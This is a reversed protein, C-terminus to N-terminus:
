EWDLDILSKKGLLIEEIMTLDAKATVWGSSTDDIEYNDGEIRTFTRTCFGLKIDVSEGIGLAKIKEFSTEM